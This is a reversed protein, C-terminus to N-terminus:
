PTSSGRGGPQSVGGRAPKTLHLTFDCVCHHKPTTRLQRIHWMRECLISLVKRFACRLYHSVNYCFVQVCHLDVEAEERLQAQIHLTVFHLLHRVGVPFLADKLHWSRFLTWFDAM